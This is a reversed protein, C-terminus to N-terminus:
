FHWLLGASAVTVAHNQYGYHSRLIRAELDLRPTVAYGASLGLGQRYWTSTSSQRVVGQGALHVTVDSEVTWRVLHLGPALTLRGQTGPVRWPLEVGAALDHVAPRLTREADAEEGRPFLTGELRVRVELGTRVKWAAGACLGFGPLDGTTRHLDGDLPVSLSGGAILTDPRLSGLGAQAPGGALALFGALALCRRATWSLSLNM